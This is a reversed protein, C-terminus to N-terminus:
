RKEGLIENTACYAKGLVGAEHDKLVAEALRLAFDVVDGDYFRGANMNARAQQIDALTTM